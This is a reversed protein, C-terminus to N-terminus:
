HFDAIVDSKQSGGVKRAMRRWHEYITAESCQCDQAIEKDNKGNLYERLILQQQRSLVRGQSYSRFVSELHAGRQKAELLVPAYPVPPWSKRTRAPASLRLALGALALPSVPKNLYPVGQWLLRAADEGSLAGALAIVAALPFNMQVARLVEDSSGDSLELDVFVVRPAREELRGVRARLEEASRMWEVELTMELARFLSLAAPGDEAILLVLKAPSSAARVM